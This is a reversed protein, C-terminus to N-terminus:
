KGEMFLDRVVYKLVDKLRILCHFIYRFVLFFPVISIETKMDRFKRQSTRVPRLTGYVEVARLSCNDLNGSNPWHCCNSVRRYLWRAYEERASYCYYRKSVHVHKRVRTILFIEWFYENVYNEIVIERSFTLRITFLTNIISSIRNMRTLENDHQLAADSWVSWERTRKEHYIGRYSSKISYYETIAIYKWKVSIPM